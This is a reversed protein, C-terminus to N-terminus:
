FQGKQLDGIRPPGVPNGDREYDQAIAPSTADRDLEFRLVQAPWAAWDAAFKRRRQKAREKRELRTKRSTM